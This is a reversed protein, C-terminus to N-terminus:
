LLVRSFGLIFVRNGKDDLIDTATCTVTTIAETIRHQYRFTEEFPMQNDVMHQWKESIRERDEPHVALLWNVGLAENESLGTLEVWINNVKICRGAIDCVFHALNLNDLISAVIKNQLQIQSFLLTQNSEINKIALPVETILSLYTNINSNKIKKAVFKYLAYVLGIIASIITYSADFYKYLFDM